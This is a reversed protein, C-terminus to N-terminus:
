LDFTLTPISKFNKLSHTFNNLFYTYWTEHRDTRSNIMSFGLPPPADVGRHRHPNLQHGEGLDLGIWLMKVFQAGNGDM